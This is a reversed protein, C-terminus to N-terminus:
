EYVKQGNKLWPSWLPSYPHVNHTLGQANYVPFGENVWEFLGGYLNRVSRFGLTHLREGLRESRYGVSCYVVVPQKRDIGVFKEKALSDYNVFRAGRLHSVKFEAPTRADLLLPAAPRSLEQVLAAAKVTPVTNRYLAKLLRDYNPHSGGPTGTGAQGCASLAFLSFFALSARKLAM